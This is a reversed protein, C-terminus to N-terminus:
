GRRPFVSFRATRRDSSSQLYRASLVPRFPPNFIALSLNVASCRAAISAVPRVITDADAPLAPVRSVFDLDFRLNDVTPNKQKAIRTGGIGDVFVECDAIAEFVHTYHHQVDSAGVGETISDGLFVVKKGQLEM